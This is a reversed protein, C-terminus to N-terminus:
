KKMVGSKQLERSIKIGIFAGLASIAVVALSMVVTLWPTLTLVAVMAERGFLYNYLVNFPLSLPNFLMVTVFVAKDSKYGRFVGIAFLELLVGIIVNSFFMAPAMMLEFLGMLVSMILLSGVKRVKMLGISFFVAIQLSTVVQAIGFVTTQLSAVLPMVACTCLTVAAIIALFVVDKIKFKEFVTNKM